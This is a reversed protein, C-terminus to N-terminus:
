GPCRPLAGGDLRCRALALAVADKREAQSVAPDLPAGHWEAAYVRSGLSPAWAHALGVPFGSSLVRGQGVGGVM